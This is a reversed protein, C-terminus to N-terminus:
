DDGFDLGDWASKSRQFNSDAVALAGSGGASKTQWGDADVVTHPRARRQPGAEPVEQVEGRRQAFIVCTSM